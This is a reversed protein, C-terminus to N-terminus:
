YFVLIVYYIPVAALVGDLRDFVGGHGPLLFGSDKVKFRRKLFSEFFDGAQSSISLCVALSLLEVMSYKFIPNIVVCTFIALGLGGISGAWTKNPSISAYIKPGGILRGFFYGGIDSAAVVGLILLLHYFSKIGSDASLLAQCIVVSIGIYIICFCKLWRGEKFFLSMIAIIFLTELQYFDYFQLVPVFFLLAPIISRTEFLRLRGGTFIFLVEWALVSLCASLFLTSILGGLLISGVALLGFVLASCVRAPLDQFNKTELM